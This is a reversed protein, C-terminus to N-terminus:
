GALCYRSHQADSRGPWAHARKVLEVGTMGKTGQTQDQWGVMSIPASLSELRAVLM